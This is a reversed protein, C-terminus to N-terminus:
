VSLMGAVDRIAQVVMDLHRLHINHSRTDTIRHFSNTSRTRTSSSGSEHEGAILNWPALDHHCILEDMGSPDRGAIQWHADPPPRFSAV